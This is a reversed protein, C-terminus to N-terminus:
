RSAVAAVDEGVVLDDFTGQDDKGNPGCSYADWGHKHVVGPCRYRIPNGWGDITEHVIRQKSPPTTTEVLADPTVEMFYKRPSGPLPPPWAATIADALAHMGTWDEGLGDARPPPLHSRAEHSRVLWSIIKLRQLTVNHRKQEATWVRWYVIPGVVILMVVAIACGILFSAPRGVERVEPTDKLPESM